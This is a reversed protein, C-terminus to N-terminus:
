KLAGANLASGSGGTNQQFLSLANIVIEPELPLEAPHLNILKRSLLSRFWPIHGKWLYGTQATLTSALQSIWKSTYRCSIVNYFTLM